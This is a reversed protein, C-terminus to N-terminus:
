CEESAVPKAKLTTKAIINAMIGPSVEIAELLTRNGTDPMRRGQEWGRLTALDLGYRQAFEAQSLGLADRLHRVRMAFGPKTDPTKSTEHGGGQLKDRFYKEVAELTTYVEDASVHQSEVPGYINIKELM